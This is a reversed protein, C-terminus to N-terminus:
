SNGAPSNGQPLFSPSFSALLNHLPQATAGASVQASMGTSLTGPRSQGGERAKGAQAAAAEWGGPNGTSGPAGPTSLFRQIFALYASRQPGKGGGGPGWLAM